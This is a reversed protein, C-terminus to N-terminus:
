RYGWPFPKPYKALIAPLLQTLQVSLGRTDVILRELDALTPTIPMRGKDNYYVNFVRMEPGDASLGIVSHIYDNRQVRNHGLKPRLAAWRRATETGQFHEMILKHLHTEIRARSSSQALRQVEENSIQRIAQIMFLLTFEISSSAIVIRGLAAAAKEHFAVTEETPTSPLASM